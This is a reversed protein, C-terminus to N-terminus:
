ASKYGEAAVHVTPPERLFWISLWAVVTLSACLWAVGRMGAAPYLRGAAAVTAAIGLQSSTNRLAIYAAREGPGVLETV